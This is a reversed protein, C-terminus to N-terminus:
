AQLVWLEKLPPQTVTKRSKCANLKRKGRTLRTPRKWNKSTLLIAVALKAQTGCSHAMQLTASSPRGEEAGELGHTRSEGCM